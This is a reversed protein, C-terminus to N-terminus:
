FIFPIMVKRNAPYNKGFEKKYSQHKKVAWIGMQVTGVVIFLISALSGGTMTCIVCWAIIEFFYNPCSVLGFGYGHPIGRKRTGVPRLNRLILHTRLNSLEAFVWVALCINLFNPDDRITHRIFPSWASYKERYVDYAIFLGALIHYHGSNKFINFVPMTGHSFRHVFMTELERKIFHVVIMTVVYKQLLSHEFDKGYFLRPLFYILPHIVLPGAYEIIFTTRWSIQPGLDKLTMHTVEQGPLVDQLKAENSLGKKEGKLCLKQREVYYKPFKSAVAAKVDAVTSDPAIELTIPFGRAFAPDKGAASITLHVM